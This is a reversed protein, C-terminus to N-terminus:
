GPPVLRRVRHDRIDILLVDEGVRAYIQGAPPKPLGYREWNLAVFPVSRPLPQGLTWRRPRDGAGHLRVWDLGKPDSIIPKEPITPPATPANRSDGAPAAAQPTPVPAPPAAGESRKAYPNRITVGGDPNVTREGKHLLSPDLRTGDQPVLVPGSGSPKATKPATQPTAPAPITKLGKPGAPDVRTFGARAGAAGGPAPPKLIVWPDGEAGATGSPSARQPTVLPSTKVLGRHLGTDQDTSQGPSPETTQALAPLVLVAGAALGIMTGRRIM